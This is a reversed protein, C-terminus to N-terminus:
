FWDQHTILRDNEDFDGVKCGGGLRAFRRRIPDFAAAGILLYFSTGAVAAITGFLWSLKPCCIAATTSSYAVGKLLPALVIPKFLIAVIKRIM